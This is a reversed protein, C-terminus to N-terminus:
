ENQADQGTDPVSYLVLDKIILIIKVFQNTIRLQSIHYSLNRKTFNIM